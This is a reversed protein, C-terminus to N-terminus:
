KGSFPPYDDTMFSLYLNVRMSWRLTGVNFNHWSEPYNGTFLVSWWALFGLIYTAIMRFLLVFGHPLACYFAGFFAKLLLTGRGLNEPYAMDFNTYEDTGNLGFSPYGDSLNYLRANVRLSWKNLKVQFEFMSQPYRGTFLISWFAIFTYISSVIGFLALLFVHPLMIYFVGFFSRLLLEGRSYSDQKKVELIM